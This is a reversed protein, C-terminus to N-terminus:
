ETVLAPTFPTFIPHTHSATASAILLPLSLSTFDVPFLPIAGGVNAPGLFYIINKYCQYVLNNSISM